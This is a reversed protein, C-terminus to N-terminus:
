FIGCALIHILFSFWSLHSLIVSLDSQTLELSEATNMWSPATSSESHERWWTELDTQPHSHSTFVCPFCGEVSGLALYPSQNFQTNFAVLGAFALDTLSRFRWGHYSNTRVALLM